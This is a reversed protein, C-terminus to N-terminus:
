FGHAAQAVFRAREAPTILALTVAERAAHTVCAVYQGPQVFGERTCRLAILQAGSCGQADVALGTATAACRDSVNAIGDGDIDTDCADGTGDDDVDAQSANAVNVCNDTTNAVGDGDVDPDCIDGLGDGDGDAQDINAVSRCNDTTDAVGDNDDDSNCIDGIGDGDLDSQAGNPVTPCNDATNAVGDDDLDPDCADGVTDGDVDIQDANAIAACNDNEDPVGDGDRDPKGCGLSFTVGSAVLTPPSVACPHTVNFGVSPGMAATGMVYSASPVLTVTQRGSFEPFGALIWRLVESGPDISITENALTVRSGSTTGSIGNDVSVNGNAAVTVSVTGFNGVGGVQLLYNTGPVVTASQLGTIMGTIGWLRWTGSYAAPDVTLMTNRFTLAHLGGVAWASTPLWSGDIPTVVGAGDVSFFVSGHNGVGGVHAVYNTGTVLTLTRSGTAVGVVKEVNWGGAYAAPDVAVTTTKFTLRGPGGIAASTDSAGNLAIATVTSDGAVSFFVSGLNGAGGAHAVYTTGPVLTLSRAGTAFGVVREVNWAGAFAAPDITVTTTKFTLRGAGGTAASSDAFWALNIPTVTGDAAVSFMVSGFNGIGGVHAIYNTGPVLAAVRAGTGFPVIGQVDWSGLYAAPDITVPATVFRLIGAGGTASTGNPVTVSGDAAVSIEFLGFNAQGGVRVRYSSGGSLTITRRGSAYPTVAPWGEIGWAGVYAGPDVDISVATLAARSVGLAASQEGTPTACGAALIFLAAFWAGSRACFWPSSM